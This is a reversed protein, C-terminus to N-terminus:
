DWNLPKSSNLRDMTELLATHFQYTVRVGRLAYSHFRDDIRQQVLQCNELCTGQLFFLFQSKNYQTFFDSQRLSGQIAELLKESAEDLRLDYVNPLLKGFNGSEMNLIM